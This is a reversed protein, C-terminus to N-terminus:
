KLPKLALHTVRSCLFSIMELVKGPWRLLLTMLNKNLLNAKKVSKMFECLDCDLSLFFILCPCCFIQVNQATNSPKRMKEPTAPKDILLILLMNYTRSGPKEAQPPYNKAQTSYIEAQPPHDDAQELKLFCPSTIM